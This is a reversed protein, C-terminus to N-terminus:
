NAESQKSPVTASAESKVEASPAVSAEARATKPKSKYDSEYWGAGKLQFGSASILKQLSDQQCKPCTTLRPDSIKQLADFQHQCATCQYEYIPM